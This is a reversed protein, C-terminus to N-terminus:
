GVRAEAALGQLEARMESIMETNGDEEGMRLRQRKKHALAAATRYFRRTPRQAKSFLSAWWLRNQARASCATEYQAQSMVGLEVEEKLHVKMIQGERRIVGLIFLFLLFWGGWDFITVIIAGWAGSLFTVLTNHISHLFVAIGWGIIPATVRFTLNKNLRAIALGIGIFSTYFPHQWGVLIVRVFVLDVLGEWGGELWGFTFIYYANETAAFGLAAVSAYVIGDMVSDFERRFLLFVGLVGFGKLSEEVVPAFLSGTAVMAATESETVVLVGMGLLTNVIFATGAAIVAGWTFVGLLLLKPEKEYRDLWYVFIAFIFMPIFGFLISIFLGGNETM